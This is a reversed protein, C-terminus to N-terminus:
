PLLPRGHVRVLEGVGLEPGLQYPALKLLEVERAARPTRMKGKMLISLRTTGMPNMGRSTRGMRVPNMGRSTRGLVLMAPGTTDLLIGPDQQVQQLELLAAM